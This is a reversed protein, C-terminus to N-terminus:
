KCLVAFLPCNLLGLISVGFLTLKHGSWFKLQVRSQLALTGERDKERERKKGGKECM